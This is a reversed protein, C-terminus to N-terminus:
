KLYSIMKSLTDVNDGLLGMCRNCRHCLLGRVKGTDHCHDVVMVDTAGGRGAKRGGPKTSGCIKCQYNQEILMTNYQELTIGYNHRLNKDRGKTKDYSKSQKDLTCRKCTGVHYRSKKNVKYFDDLPKIQGCTKCTKM